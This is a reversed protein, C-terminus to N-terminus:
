AGKPRKPCNGLNERTHCQEIDHVGWRVVPNGEQCIITCYFQNSREPRCEPYEPPGQALYELTVFDPCLERGQGDEMYCQKKGDLLECGGGRFDYVEEPKWTTRPVVITPLASGSPSPTASAPVVLEACPKQGSGGCGEAFWLVKGEDTCKATCLYGTPRKVSCSDQGFADTLFQPNVKNPCAGGACTCLSESTGVLKRWDDRCTCERLNYKIPYPSPTPDAVVQFRYAGDDNAGVEASRPVPGAGPAPNAAGGTSRFAPNSIVTGPLTVQELGRIHSAQQFVSPLRVRTPMEPGSMKMALTLAAVGTLFAALAIMQFTGLRFGGNNPKHPSKSVAM